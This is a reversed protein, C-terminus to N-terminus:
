LSGISRCWHMQARRIHDPQFVLMSRVLLGSDDCGVALPSYVSSGNEGYTIMWQWDYEVGRFASLSPNGSNTTSLSVTVSHLTHSGSPLSYM